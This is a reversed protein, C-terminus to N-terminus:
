INGAKTYDIESGLVSHPILYVILTVAAALIIWFRGKGDSRSRWLAVLWFLVAFATKSDTLDRGFPWGTWYENFAFKQLLPGFILGGIILLITTWFTLSYMKAGNVIAEFGARTALLMGMFIIIIHPIIIFAPVAGKFRIVVPKESLEYRSGNADVLTVQYMVKGAPPQKPLTVILNEGDRPLPLVSWDDYSKYRKLKVEGSINQDPVKIEMRADEDTVHTTLLRYKIKEGNIEVSGRIPYTPGTLRQYVVSGLTIVIAIIWLVLPRRM